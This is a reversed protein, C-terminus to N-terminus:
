IVVHLFLSRLIDDDLSAKAAWKGYQITWQIITDREEYISRGNRRINKERLFRIHRLKIAIKLNILSYLPTLPRLMFSVLMQVIRVFVQRHKLIRRYWRYHNITGLYSTSGMIPCRVIFVTTSNKILSLLNITEWMKHAFKDSIWSGYSIAYQKLVWNLQHSTSFMRYVFMFLKLLFMANM